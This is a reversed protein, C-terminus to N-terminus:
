RAILRNLDLYMVLVFILAIISLGIMQALELTQPSLRRRRIGEVMLLVMQGGDVVPIPLLNVVGLSMSLVAMLQLLGSAGRKVSNSTEMVISIPGGVANKVERSFIVTFFNKVFGATVRTGYRVSEVAGVRKLEPTVMIGIAGMDKGDIKTLKPTVYIHLTKDERNVTFDLKKGTSKHIVDVLQEGTVIRKGDIHTVVDGVAIGAKDAIGNPMILEIRNLSNKTIPLGVMVGMICFILYALVFNMLPGTFYVLFRAWWPKSNFGSPLNEEGPEAGALKVFGGLPFPHITYETDGRKMLTIWKPGFGFAFEEVKIGMIKAMTFHGLEHVFVLAGLVVIVAVIVQIINLLGASSFIQEL